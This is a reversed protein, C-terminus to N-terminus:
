ACCGAVIQRVLLFVEEDCHCLAVGGYLGFNLVFDWVKVVLQQVFAASRGVM